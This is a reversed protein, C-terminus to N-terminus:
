SAVRLCRIRAAALRSKHKKGTAGNLILDVSVIQDFSYRSYQRGDCLVIGEDDFNLGIATLDYPSVHIETVRHAAIIENKLTQARTRSIRSSAVAFVIAAIIMAPIIINYKPSEDTDEPSATAQGHSTHHDIQGRIPTIAFIGLFGIVIWVAVVGRVVYGQTKWKRLKLTLFIICGFIMTGSIIYTFSDDLLHGSSFVLWARLGIMEAYVIVFLL